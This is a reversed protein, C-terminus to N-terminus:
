SSVVECPGGGGGEREPEKLVGNPRAKRSISQASPNTGAMESSNPKIELILKPRSGNRNAGGVECTSGTSVATCSRRALRTFSLAPLCAPCHHGVVPSITLHDCQLDSRRRAIHSKPKHIVICLVDVRVLEDIIHAECVFCVLGVCARADFVSALKECMALPVEFHRKFRRPAHSCQAGRVM